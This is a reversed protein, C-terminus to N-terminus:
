AVNQKQEEMEKAIEEHAVQYSMTCNGEEMEEWKTEDVNEGEIGDKGAEIKDRVETEKKFSIM